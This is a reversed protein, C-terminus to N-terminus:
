RAHALVDVAVAKEDEEPEEKGNSGGEKKEAQGDPPLLVSSKGDVVIANGEGPDAEDDIGGKLHHLHVREPVYGVESGVPNGLAVLRRMMFVLEEPPLKGENDEEPGDEPGDLRTEHGGIM